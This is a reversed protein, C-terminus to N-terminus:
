ALAGLQALIVEAAALDLAVHGVSKFLTVADPEAGRIESIRAQEHLEVVSAEDLLGAERAQILDGAEHWASESTEVVIHARGVTGLPVEAREPRYSGMANVHTGPEIQRDAFVPTQSTTATVVIQAGELCSDADAPQVDFGRAAVRKRFASLRTRRRGVVRIERVQRVASIAEVHEEALSGAGFVTLVDADDAALLRTALAAAAATRRATLMAGDVLLRIRGDPDFLAVAGAITPGEPRADGHGVRLLKCLMGGDSTLGPMVVWDQGEAALVLRQPADPPKAFARAVADILAPMPLLARTESSGLVRTTSPNL